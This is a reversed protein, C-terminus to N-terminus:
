QSEFPPKGKVSWSNYQEKQRRCRSSGNASTETKAAGKGRSPWVTASCEAPSIVRISLEAITRRGATKCGNRRATREDERADSQTCVIGASDCDRVASGEAPAAIHEPLEAVASGGVSDRRNWDAPRECKRANARPWHMRATHGSRESHGETPTIVRPSLKAITRRRAAERWNWNVSRESKGADGSTPPVRAARRNPVGHPAPPVARVGLEAVAAYNASESGAQGLEVARTNGRSFLV